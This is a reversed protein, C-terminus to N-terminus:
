QERINITGLNGSPCREKGVRCELLSKIEELKELPIHDYELISEPDICHTLRYSGEKRRNESYMVTTRTERMLNVIELKLEYHPVEQVNSLIPLTLFAGFFNRRSLNRTM